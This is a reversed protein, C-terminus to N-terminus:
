GAAGAARMLERVINAAGIPRCGSRDAGRYACRAALPVMALGAAAAVSVGFVGTCPRADAACTTTTWARCTTTCWRTPTSSRWAAALVRCDLQGGVAEYTAPSSCPACVAKRRGAPQIPDCRRRAARRRRAGDRLVRCAHRRDASSRGDSSLEAIDAVCTTSAFYGTRRETLQKLRTEAEVLFATAARLEAIGEEFLALAADLELEEDELRASIAELRELSTEFSMARKRNCLRRPLIRLTLRSAISRRRAVGDRLVLDVASGPELARVVEVTRGQDNRVIPM